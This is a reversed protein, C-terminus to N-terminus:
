QPLNSSCGVSKGGAEIPADVRQQSTVPLTTDVVRDKRDKKAIFSPIDAVLQAIQIRLADSSKSFLRENVNM